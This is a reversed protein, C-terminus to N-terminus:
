LGAVIHRRLEASSASGTVHGRNIVAVPHNGYSDKQRHFRILQDYRALLPLVNDTQIRSFQEEFDLVGEVQTPNEAAKPATLKRYVSRTFVDGPATGALLPVYIDASNFFTRHLNTVWGGLSIGSIMVRSGKQRAYTTLKEAVLTSVCLLTSFTSLHAMYELYLKFSRHFPARIAILNAPVPEKKSLLIERFTNKSYVRSEFPRENNGHHYIITPYTGGLWRAIHVAPDLEGIETWAPVEYYGEGNIEPWQLAISSLLQEYSPSDISERFLKNRFFVASAVTVPFSDMVIHINM